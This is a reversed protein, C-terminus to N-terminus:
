LQRLDYSKIMSQQFDAYAAIDHEALDLGDFEDAEGAHLKCRSKLLRWLGWSLGLALLGIAVLALLNVGLGKFRAGLDLGRALLPTALAGWAAGVGHIAVGGVPDDIRFRIDFSLVALPVLIGAVAGILFAVPVIVIHAGASIAVLAGLVGAFTLHVDPKYYRVQSLILSAMGGGAAAVLVNMMVAGGRLGGHAGVFLLWGVLLLLLGIGALPVSHGPIAASSGDRHYKGDRPGVAIAGVLACLAAPWHITAAGALDILGMRGLWGWGSAWLRAIPIILGALLASSWLSPWFRAREALVGPVIATAILVWAAGALVAGFHPDGLGLLLRFDVGIVQYGSLDIAIGVAVYALLAICFDCVFRLTMGASNKARIMGLAHVALGARLLLAGAVGVIIWLTGDM